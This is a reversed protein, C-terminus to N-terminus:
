EKETKTKRANRTPTSKNPTETIPEAPVPVVDLALEGPPVTEVVASEEQVDQALKPETVPADPVVPVVDSSEDAKAPTAVVPVIPKPLEDPPLLPRRVRRIIPYLM